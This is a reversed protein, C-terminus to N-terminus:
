RIRWRSRVQPDAAIWEADCGIHILQTTEKEKIRFLRRFTNSWTRDPFRKLQPFQGFNGRDVIMGRGEVIVQVTWPNRDLDFSESATVRNGCIYCIRPRIMREDRIMKLREEFDAETTPDTKVNWWEIGRTDAWTVPLPEVYNQEGGYPEVVLREPNRTVTAVFVRTGPRCKQEELIEELSQPRLNKGSNWPRRKPRPRGPERWEYGPEGLM